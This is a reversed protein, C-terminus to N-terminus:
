ASITQSIKRMPKMQWHLDRDVEMGCVKLEKLEKFSIYGWEANEYDENLISYGFFIKKDPDYEAIYWDSGGLFFHGYIVKDDNIIGETSYLRPIKKLDEKTPKSWM